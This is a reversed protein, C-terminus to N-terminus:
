RVCHGTVDDTNVKSAFELKLPLRRHNAEHPINERIRRLRNLAGRQVRISGLDLAVALRQPHAKPRGAAAGDLEIRLLVDLIAKADALADLCAKGAPLLPRRGTQHVPPVGPIAFKGTSGQM